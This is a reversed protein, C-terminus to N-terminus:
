VDTSLLGLDSRADYGHECNLFLVGVGNLGHLHYHAEPNQVASSSFSISATM